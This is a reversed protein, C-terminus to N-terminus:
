EPSTGVRPQYEAAIRWAAFAFAAQATLNLVEELLQILVFQHGVSKLAVLILTSAMNFGLLLAAVHLQRRWGLDAAVLGSTMNGLVALLVLPSRWAGNGVPTNLYFALLLSLWSIGVPVLWADRRPSRGLAKARARLMAAAILAFGPGGFVYTTTTLLPLDAGSIALVLNSVARALGGLTILAFGTFALRRCSPDLRAVLRALFFLGMALFLVPAFDLLALGIAIAM